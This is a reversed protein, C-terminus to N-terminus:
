DKGYIVYALGTYNYGSWWTHGTRIYLIAEELYRLEVNFGEGSPQCHPLAILGGKESDSSKAVGWLRHIQLMSSLPITDSIKKIGNSPLAGFDVKKCYLTGGDTDKEFPWVQENTSWEFEEVGGLLQNGAKAIRIM